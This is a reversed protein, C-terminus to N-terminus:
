RVGGPTLTAWCGIMESSEDDSSGCQGRVVTRQDSQSSVNNEGYARRGDTRINTCLYISTRTHIKTQRGTCTEHIQVHKCTHETM